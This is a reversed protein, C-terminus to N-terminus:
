RGRLDLLTAVTEVSDLVRSRRESLFPRLAALLRRRNEEKGTPTSGTSTEEHTESKPTDGNDYGDGKQSTQRAEGVGDGESKDALLASIERVLEPHALIKSVMSTLDNANSPDM